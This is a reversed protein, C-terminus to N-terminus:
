ARRRALVCLGLGLLLASAPEPVAPAIPLSLSASLNQQGAILYSLGQNLNGPASLLQIQTSASSALASFHLTALSLQAQGHNALGPFRSAGFQGAGLLPSDDDWGAAPSFGDLRLLNADYSLQFGFSLLEESSNLQDFPADLQLQLTFSQGVQVPGSTSLTASAAQAQGAFLAIAAALVSRQLSNTFLSTTMPM